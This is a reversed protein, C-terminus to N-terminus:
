AGLIDRVDQQRLNAQALMAVSAQKIIESKLIEANEVTELRQLENSIAGTSPGPRAAGSQRPRTYLRVAEAAPRPEPNRPAERPDPQPSRAVQERVILTTAPSETPSGSPAAATTPQVPESSAPPQTPPTTITAIATGTQSTGGNATTGGSATVNGGQAPAAPRSVSLLPNSTGSILM